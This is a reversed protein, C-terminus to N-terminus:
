KDDHPNEVDTAVGPLRNNYGVWAEAVGPKGEAMNCVLVVVRRLVLWLLVSIVPYLADSSQM